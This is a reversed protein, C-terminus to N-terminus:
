ELGNGISQRPPDSEFTNPSAIEEFRICSKELAPYARWFGSTGRFDPLDADVGMGAGATILLGEAQKILEACRAIGSSSTM